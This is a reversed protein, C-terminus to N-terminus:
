KALYVSINKNLPVSAKGTTFAQYGSAEVSYTYDGAELGSFVQPSSGDAVKTGDKFLTVAGASINQKENTLIRLSCPCQANSATTRGMAVNVKLMKGTGTAAGAERIEYSHDGESPKSILSAWKGDADVVLDGLKNEGELLELSQGAEGTGQILFDQADLQEAEAPYTFALGGATMAKMTDAGSTMGAEITQGAAMAGALPLTAGMNGFVGNGFIGTGFLPVILLAVINAVKIMPNIAPGATDKYPDGVTDGTVSAQHAFSGKKLVTGHEDKLDGSEIYKKANDWAGGGTTMQIALFIGVVISGMLLGGLAKPGLLFGVVIPALVPLLAPITMEKLAAQTVISVAQAYDPKESYDMIGPKERFQRRVELVVAGAARGVAEMSMAAFLCPLIGGILLGAVVLPDGLDFRIPTGGSKDLEATYSAFLALAALGASGIAYGKTVAKTTNGVADLPDTVGRVKEDMEAMEAIGGANDTIPGFADVTVIVGCLSLMAMAAIAVGYLGALAFAILTGAVIVLVPFATAKMGVALGAIINTGHGTLSARAISRVPAFESSTYYDTIYMLGITVALGVLSALFLNMSNLGAGSVTNSAFFFGIASLVVSVWVGRYLSGMIGKPSSNAPAGIAFIGIISAVIGVGGIILPYVIVSENGKFTLHGLLLAAIATM